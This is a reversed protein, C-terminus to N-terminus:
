KELKNRLYMLVEGTKYGENKNNVMSRLLEEEKNLPCGSLAINWLKELLGLEPPLSESFHGILKCFEYLADGLESNGALNLISLYSLMSITVPVNKIKNYSLDLSTLAPFLVYSKM